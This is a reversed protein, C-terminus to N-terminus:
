AAGLGGGYRKWHLAPTTGPFPLHLVIGRGNGINRSPQQGNPLDLTRALETERAFPGLAVGLGTSLWSIAVRADTVAQPQRHGLLGELILAILNGGELRQEILQGFPRQFAAQNAGVGHM